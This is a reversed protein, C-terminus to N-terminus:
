WEKNKRSAYWPNKFSFRHKTGDKMIVKTIIENLRKSYRSTFDLVDNPELERDILKKKLDESIM